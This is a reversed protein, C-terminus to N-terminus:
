DERQAVALEVDVEEGAAQRAVAPVRLPARLDGRLGLAVPRADEVLGPAAGDGVADDLAHGPFVGGELQLLALALAPGQALLGPAAGEDEEVARVGVLPLAALDDLVVQEVAARVALLADAGALQVDLEARRELRLRAALAAAVAADEHLADL